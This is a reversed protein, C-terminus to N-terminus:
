YGLKNGLCGASLSKRCARSPLFLNIADCELKTQGHQIFLVSCLREDAM